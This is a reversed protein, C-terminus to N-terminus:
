LSGIHLTPADLEEEARRIEALTALVDAISSASTASEVGLASYLDRLEAEIAGLRSCVAEREPDREVQREWTKRALGKPRFAGSCALVAQHMANDAADQAQLAIKAWEGGPNRAQWSTSALGEVIQSHLAACAELGSAVRPHFREALTGKARFDDLEAIRESIQAALPNRRQLRGERAQHVAKLLGSATASWAIFLGLSLWFSFDPPGLWLYAAGGLGILNLFTDWTDRRRKASTNGANARILYQEIHQM